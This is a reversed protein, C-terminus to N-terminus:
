VTKLIPYFQNAENLHMSLEAEAEKIVLGTAKMHSFAKYIWHLGKTLEALTPM